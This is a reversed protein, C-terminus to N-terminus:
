KPQAPQAGPTNKQQQVVFQLAERSPVLSVFKFDPANGQLLLNFLNDLSTVQIRMSNGVKPQQEKLQNLVGQVDQKNFYFPTFKNDGNEITLPASKNGSEALFFLPISNFNKAAQGNQELIARAYDVQQKIPRFSFVVEDERSSNKKKLRYAQGLSITTVTAKSGVEPNNAKIQSIVAQADKHNLFFSVYQRKKATDNRDQIFAPLLNGQKDTIIFVPIADMRELIETESLAIASMQGLFSPAVFSGGSLSLILGWHILGKM